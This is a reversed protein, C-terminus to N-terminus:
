DNGITDVSGLWKMEECQDKLSSYKRKKRNSANQMYDDFAITLELFYIRNVTKNWIAIDPRATFHSLPMPLSYQGNLDATM